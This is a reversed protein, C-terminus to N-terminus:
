PLPHPPPVTSHTPCSSASSQAQPGPTTQLCASAVLVQPPPTHSCTWPCACGVGFMLMFRRFCCDAEPVTRRPGKTKCGQSLPNARQPTPRQGCCSCRGAEPGAWQGRPRGVWHPEGATQASEREAGEETLPLCPEGCDPPSPFCPLSAPFGTPM